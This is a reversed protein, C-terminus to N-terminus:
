SKGLLLDVVWCGRVHTPKEDRCHNLIDDNDCGADQLADALIPMRDFARDDYIGKALALVTSTLWSPDVTVSHFANRIIDRLLDLAMGREDGRAAPLSPGLAMAGIGHTLTVAWGARFTFPSHTVPWGANPDATHLLDHAHFFHESQLAPERLEVRELALGVDSSKATEDAFRELVEVAPLFKPPLWTLARACACAFLVRLREGPEHHLCAFLQEPDSCTMWEAETM